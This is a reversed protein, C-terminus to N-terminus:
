GSHRHVFLTGVAGGTLGFQGVAEAVGPYHAHGYDDLVVLADPALAPWWANLEALTDDLQHSSDIYLMEVPRPSRPGAAGPLEFLEIRARTQASALALYREREPRYIPDFSLVDRGSDAAALMLTTWASGTGLEVVFSRGAALDLLRKLDAPRTASSLSFLDGSRRARLRARLQLAAIRWPLPSLQRIFRLDDLGHRAIRRARKVVAPRAGDPASSV